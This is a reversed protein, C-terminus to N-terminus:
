YHAPIYNHKIFVQQIAILSYLRTVGHYTIIDQVIWVCWVSNLAFEPLGWPYDEPFMDKSGAAVSGAVEIM